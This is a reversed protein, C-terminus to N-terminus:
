GKTELDFALSISVIDKAKASAILCIGTSNTSAPVNAVIISIHLVSLRLIMYLSM